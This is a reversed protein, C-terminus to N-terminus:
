KTPDFLAGIDRAGHVVHVIQVVGKEVRYYILYDRFARRRLQRRTYRQVIPYACPMDGIALAKERLTLVFEVARAASDKSIYDGISELDRLAEDSFRVKV